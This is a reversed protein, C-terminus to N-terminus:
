SIHGHQEGSDMMKDRIAYGLRIMEQAKKEKFEYTHGVLYSKYSKVFRVKM